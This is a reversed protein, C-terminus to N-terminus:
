GSVAKAAAGAGTGPQRPWASPEAVSAMREIAGNAALMADDTAAREQHLLEDETEVRMVRGLLRNVYARAHPDDCAVVEALSGPEFRNLWEGTKRTNVVRAGFLERGQRRYVTVAARAQEPDVILAERLKGLYREICDRWREDTIEVLDCLPRSPIGRADLLAILGRTPKSLPAEGRELSNLRERLGTLAERMAKVQADLSELRSRFDPLDAKLVGRAEVTCQEVVEPREPWLSALLEDRPLVAALAKLAPICPAPLDSQHDLTKWVGALRLRVASIASGAQDALIKQTESRAVLERRKAESGSAEIQGSLRILAAHDADDQRKLEALQGNLVEKQQAQKGLEEECRAREQDLRLWAAEMEIWDYQVARQGRRAAELYQAQVVKLAAIRDRVERTKAEIDRYRRLSEQLAKVRIPKDDLIHRRVFESVDKLPAFTVANKLSRAFRTPEFSRGGYGLAEGLRKIFRGAENQNDFEAGQAHCRRRLDERVREWSIPREGGDIMEIFDHLILATRPAIFRGDVEFVGNDLQALMALGIATEEHSEDDRFSLVVYSVAQRRPALDPDVEAGTAPDRVVGLCYERLTRRSKEGASANLQILRQDGGLLVAQIADLVSSKGAANPGIFATNGEIDIQEASLLYWNVLLIRNLLKM